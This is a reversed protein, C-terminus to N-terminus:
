QGLGNADDQRAAGPDGLPSGNGNLVYLTSNGRPDTVTNKFRGSIAEQYDFHFATTLTQGSVPFERVEKVYEEKGVFLLGPRGAAAEGPFPTPSGPLVLDRYPQRQSRRRGHAPLPRPRRERFVRLDRGPRRRAAPRLPQHRRAQGPDPEGAHRLPVRRAPRAARHDGHGGPRPRGGVRLHLQRHPGPHREPGAGRVGRRCARRRRLAARDPRRAARRHVRSAEVRDARAALGARPLPAEDGVQRHLGLRRREPRAQHPLGEAAHLDPRRRDHPLVPQKRRRDPGGVGRLVDADVAVRLQLELGRGHPGRRGQGRELVLADGRPRPPPRAGQHGDVAAGRPRRLRRRGERLHPRRAPGLPEQPRGRDRRERAPRHHFRGLDQAQVEFPKKALVPGGLIGYPVMIKHVGPGLPLSSIPAPPADDISLVEARGDITFDVKAARCLGFVVPAEDGCLTGNVPDQVASLTVKPTNLSLLPCAEDGTPPKLSASRIGGLPDSGGFIGNATSFILDSTPGAALTGGVGEIAGSIVTPNRPDLVSVLYVARSTAVVAIGDRLLVDTPAEPLAVWGLPEPAQPHSVSVVVLVATPTGNIRGFGAVVAVPGGVVDGVAVAQGQDLRNGGSDLHGLAVPTPFLLRSTQPNVTALGIDGTAVVVPQSLGDVALDAVDLDFLRAPQGPTTEVKTTSVVADNGFGQGDTNLKQVMSFYGTSFLQGGTAAFFNDRARGLDVVQIGKRFTSSYARDNRVRARLIYGEVTSSTLSAAGVWLADAPSSVDFVDLNAPLSRSTPGTAVVVTGEEGTLDLPRGTVFPYGGLVIERPFVPNKIDFSRLTGTYFDNQVLWARDGLVVIGPSLFTEGTGPPNLSGPAYTQFESRYTTALAKPAPNGNADRDVDVIGDPVLDAGKVVIAYRTGYKLGGRPEITVSTVTTTDDGINEYAVPTGNADRGVGSLSAPVAVAGASTIEELTVNPRGTSVIRRVPESFVVRPFVATTVGNSRDAPLTQDNLM